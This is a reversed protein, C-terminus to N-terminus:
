WSWVHGLVRGERREQEREQYHQQGEVKCLVGVSSPLFLGLSRDQLSLRPSDMVLQKRNLIIREKKYNHFVSSSCLIVVKVACTEM